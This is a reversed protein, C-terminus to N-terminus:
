GGSARGRIAKAKAGVAAGSSGGMMKQVVLIQPLRGNWCVHIFVRFTHELAFYSISNIFVPRHQLRASSVSVLRWMIVKLVRM